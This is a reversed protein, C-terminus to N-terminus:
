RSEDDRPRLEAGGAQQAGDEGDAGRGGDERQQVSGTRKAARDAALGLWLLAAVLVVVIIGVPAAASGSVLAVPVAVADALVAGVLGVTAPRIAAAHGARWAVDSAQTSRLRIGVTPNRPIVGSAARRSVVLVLLLILPGALAAIVLPLPM